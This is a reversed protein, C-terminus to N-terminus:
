SRLQRHGTILYIEDLQETSLGYEMDESYFLEILKALKAENLDIKVISDSSNHYYFFTESGVLFYQSHSLQDTDKKTPVTSQKTYGCYQSLLIHLNAEKLWTKFNTLLKEERYILVNTLDLGPVYLVKLEPLVLYPFLLPLPSSNNENFRKDTHFANTSLFERFSIKPIRTFKKMGIYRFNLVETKNFLERHFNKLLQSKPHKAQNSYKHLESIEDDDEEQFLWHDYVSVYLWKYGNAKLTEEIEEPRLWPAVDIRFKELSPYIKNLKVQGDRDLVKYKKM